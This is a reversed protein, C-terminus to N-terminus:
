LECMESFFFRKKQLKDIVCYGFADASQFFLNFLTVIEDLFFRIKQM